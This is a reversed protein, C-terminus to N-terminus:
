KVELSSPIFASLNTGVFGAPKRIKNQKDKIIWRNFIEDYESSVEIQQQKYMEVTADVVAQTQPFKSLNDEAVRKMAGDVDVGLYELKQLLGIAVFMVDVAGDLLGVIPQQNVADLTEQAEETVLAVQNKLDQFSVKRYQGSLVNFDEADNRFDQITYELEYKM